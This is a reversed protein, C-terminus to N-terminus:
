MRPCFVSSWYGSWAPISPHAVPMFRKSDQSFYLQEKPLSLVLLKNRSKTIQKTSTFHKKNWFDTITTLPSKTLNPFPQLLRSPCDPLPPSKVQILSFSLQGNLSSTEACDSLQASGMARCVRFRHGDWEAGVHRRLSCLGLLHPLITSPERPCHSETTGAKRALHPQSLVVNNQFNEEQCICSVAPVLRRLREEPWFTGM